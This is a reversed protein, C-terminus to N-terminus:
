RLNSIDIKRFFYFVIFSITKSMIKLKSSQSKGFIKWARMKSFYTGRTRSISFDPIMISYFQRELPFLLSVAACAPFPTSNLASVPTALAVWLSTLHSRFFCRSLYFGYLFPPTQNSVASHVPIEFIRYIEGGGGEKERAIDQGRWVCRDGSRAIFNGRRGLRENNGLREPGPGSIGWAKRGLLKQRWERGVSRAQIWM